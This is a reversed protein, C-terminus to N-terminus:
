GEEAQPALLAHPWGWRRSLWILPSKIFWPARWWWVWRESRYPSPRANLRRIWQYGCLLCMNHWPPPSDPADGWHQHISLRCLLPRREYRNETTHQQCGGHECDGM